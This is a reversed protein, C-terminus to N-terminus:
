SGDAKPINIRRAPNARYKGQHIRKHLQMLREDLNKGYESWTMGDNGPASNRKLNTYSQKLLDVTIHHLLATFKMKRDKQAAHRVAQLGISATIQSQTWGAAEHRRNGKPRGREEMVEAPSIRVGKNPSKKPVVLLDSKEDMHMNM